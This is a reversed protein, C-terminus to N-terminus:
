ELINIMTIIIKFSLMDSIQGHQGEAVPTLGRFFKDVTCFRGSEVPPLADSTLCTSGLDIRLHLGVVTPLHFYLKKEIQYLLHM